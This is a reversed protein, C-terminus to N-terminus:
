QHGTGSAYALDVTSIIRRKGNSYTVRAKREYVDTKVTAKGVKIGVTGVYGRGEYDVYGGSIMMTENITLEKM